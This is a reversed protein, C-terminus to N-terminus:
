VEEMGFTPSSGVRPKGWRIKLGARRGIGGSRRSVWQLPRNPTAILGPNGQYKAVERRPGGRRTRRFV